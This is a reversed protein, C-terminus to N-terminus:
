EKESEATEIGEVAEEKVLALKEDNDGLFYIYRPSEIMIKDGVKVNITVDDAVAKVLLTTKPMSQLGNATQIGTNPIILGTKSKKYADGDIIEVLIRKNVPKVM